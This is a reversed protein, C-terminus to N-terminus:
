RAHILKEYLPLLELRIEDANMYGRYRYRVIGQRDILFSEPLGWIGFAIAAKGQADLGIAQYYKADAGLWARMNEPTDRWAIGYIPMHYRKALRVLEPEGRPV